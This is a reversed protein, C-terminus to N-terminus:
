RLLTVNGIQKFLKGNEFTCRCKFVYVDQKCLEGRYYGDWGIDPDTTEYIKEGYRNFIELIYTGKKVGRRPYPLFVFNEFKTEIGGCPGSPDPRFATPFRLMGEAEVRVPVEKGQAPCNQDSWVKLNVYYTGPETYYHVPEMEDYVNGDGMEWKYTAAGESENKTFLPVNPLRVTDPHISFNVTPTPNIILTDTRMFVEHDAGPGYAYETLLYRGVKNFLYSEAKGDPVMLEAELVPTEAAYYIEWKVSDAFDVGQVLNFVEPNCRKLSSPKVTRTPAAPLITVTVTDSAPCHKTTVDLIVQYEGYTKYEWLETGKYKTNDEWLDTGGDGFRWTYRVDDGPVSDAYMEVKMNPQKYLPSSLRINATPVSYVTVQASDSSTCVDNPIQLRTSLWVWYTTDRYSKNEFTEVRISDHDDTDYSKIDGFQWRYSVYDVDEEPVVTTNQFQARFPSCDAATRPIIKFDPKPAVYYTVRVTDENRCTITTRDQTYLKEATVVSHWVLVNTMAHLSDIKTDRQQQDYYHVGGVPTDWYGKVVIGSEPDDTNILSNGYPKSANLTTYDVCLHQDKGADVDFSYNYIIVSDTATFGNKTVNWYLVNKGRTLGHVTTKPDTSNEFKAGGNQAASWHSVAGEVKQANLKVSDECISKDTGAEVTFANYNITVIDTAKCPPIRRVGDPSDDKLTAIWQLQNRGQALNTVHTKPQTEDDFKGFGTAVHWEGTYTDVIKAEIDYENSQDVTYLNDSTRVDADVKFKYCIIRVAAEATCNTVTDEVRWTFINAYGKGDDDYYLGTVRTNYLTNNEFQPTAGTAVMPTESDAGWIWQGKQTSTLPQGALTAFTDCTTRDEGATINISQNNVVVDKFTKCQINEGNVVTWRITNSGSKLQEVMSAQATSLNPPIVGYGKVVQWYGSGASQHAELNTSPTCVTKNGSNITIEVQKNSVTISHSATCNNLEVTWTLVNDSAPPLGYVTTKNNTSSTFTGAGSWYGRAEPGQYLATVTTMTDCIEFDRGASTVFHNNNVVLEDQAHCRKPNGEADMVEASYVHWILTNAGQHINSVTTIHADSNAIDVHGNPNEWYGYGGAPPEPGSITRIDDDNCAVIDDGLEANVSFNQVEVSAVSKCKGKEIHWYSTNSGNITPYLTTVPQTSNSVKATMPPEWWGTAGGTPVNGILTAYGDCVPNPTALSATAKYLNNVVILRATANCETGDAETKSIHWILTHAGTSVNNVVANESDSREIEIVQSPTTWWGRVGEGAPAASIPSTTGCIELTDTGNDGSTSTILKNVTIAITDSSTCNGKHITWAVFNVDDGTLGYVKTSYSTSNEFNGIGDAITWEGWTGQPPMNALINTFTDCSVQTERVLAQPPKNNLVRIDAYNQCERDKMMTTVTWRLVNVGEQLNRVKSNNQDSTAFEADSGVAEWKSTYDSVNVYGYVEGEDSCYEEASSSVSVQVNSSEVKITDSSFCANPDTKYLKDSIFNPLDKYMGGRIITWAFSNGSSLGLVKTKFSTSELCEGSGSVTEWFGIEDVGPTNGILTTNNLCSTQDEGAYAQTPKNVTVTVLATAECAGNSITWRFTNGGIQLGTVETKFSTVDKIEGQDTIHTWKGSYIGPDQAQLVADTECTVFDQGATTTLNENTLVVEAQSTCEKGAEVNKITWVFRSERVPLNHVETYNATIDDIVINANDKGVISWEGKGVKPANASLHYDSSCIPTSEMVVAKDPAVNKIIVEDYTDCKNYYVHWQFTSTGHSLNRVVTKNCASSYPNTTSAYM